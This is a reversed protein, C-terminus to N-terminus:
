RQCPASRADVHVVAEKTQGGFLTQEYFPHQVARNSSDLNYVELDVITAVTGKSTIYLEFLVVSPSETVIVEVEFDGQMTPVAGDRAIGAIPLSYPLLGPAQDQAAARHGTAILLSASVVMVIALMTLAGREVRLSDTWQGM